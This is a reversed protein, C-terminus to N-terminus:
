EMKNHEKHIMCFKCQTIQTSRLTSVCYDPYISFYKKQLRYPYRHAPLVNEKIQISLSTGISFNSHVRLYKLQLRHPAHLYYKNQLRSPDSTSGSDDPYVILYECLLEM